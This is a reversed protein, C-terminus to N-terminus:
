PRGSDPLAVTDRSPGVILVLSQAYFLTALDAVTALKMFKSRRCVVIKSKENM